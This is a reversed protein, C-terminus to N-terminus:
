PLCQEYINKVVSNTIDFYYFISSDRTTIKQQIYVLLNKVSSNVDATVDINDPGAGCEYFKTNSDIKVERLKKNRNIFFDEGGAEFNPNYSLMDLSLYTLSNKTSLSKIEAPANEWKADDVSIEEGTTPTQTATTVNNKQDETPQNTVPSATKKSAAFYATTGALIVVTAALIIILSKQDM